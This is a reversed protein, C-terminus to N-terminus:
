SPKKQRQLEWVKAYKLFVYYSELLAVILGAIGDRFGQKFIYFKIFRFVPRGLIEAITTRHGQGFISKAASSSFKNLRAIQDTLDSYTYHYLEGKLRITKGTVVAKEHPDVGGWSTAEKRCLRLRFEPYWGGHRWWRNLYYVVRSLQYGNIPLRNKKDDSLLLLMEKKLEPSVEEDADINLVWQSKCQELAFKKQDVYGTWSRFLVKDTFERCIELTKDTSGSDVIIIENCWSVSELCRRIQSEENMCVIFASVSYCSKDLNM